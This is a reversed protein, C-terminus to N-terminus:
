STIMIGINELKKWFDPFTKNVVEPNNIKMGPIKAGAVAFSMAMRHDGYTDIIAAKPNGGYIILTDVDPSETRIGMKALEQQVAKVRETEKVRLSRVGKMTTVGDAFAALVALTQAQDPCQEMDVNLPKIGYGQITVSNDGYKITNGMQQLINVFNKDGQSSHSNLNQLTLTSGTLAAIAFFYGAGSYDGEVIYEKMKYSQGPAVIYRNYDLNKVIVGWEQMMGITMDIYSKSIQNGEVDITLGGAVPAIMLLASFYQSSVDGHLLTHQSSFLSSKIIVPPFGEKDTYEIDVGLMKLGDVLVGIPRKNLGELGFIKKIGPVIAALATIFRITTGSIRTNLNYEHDKIDRIDGIVHIENEKTVIQIGLEQLCYIMAETDDSKLPNKIVVPHFTLAAMILARNTYSKSGPISIISDEITESKIIEITNM